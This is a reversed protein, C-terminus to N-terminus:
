EDSEGPVTLGFDRAVQLYGQRRDEKSYCWEGDEILQDHLRRQFEDLYYLAGHVSKDFMKPYNECLSRFGKYFTQSSFEEPLALGVACKRGDDTLYQCRQQAKSWAPEGDGVIFHEWALDFIRQLTIKDSM